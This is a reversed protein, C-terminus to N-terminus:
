REEPERDPLSALWRVSGDLFLVAFKSGNFPVFIETREEHRIAAMSEWMFPTSATRPFASEPIRCTRVPVRETKPICYRLMRIEAHAYSTLRRDTQSDFEVFKRAFPDNKAFFTGEDKLYNELSRRWHGVENEWPDKTTQRYMTLTPPFLGDFDSLYIGNAQGIQRLNALSGADNGRKRAGLFVPVLIAALLIAIGIVVLIETLSFARSRKLPERGGVKTARLLDDTRM